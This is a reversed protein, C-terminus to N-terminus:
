KQDGSTYPVTELIDLIDQPLINDTDETPNGDDGLKTVSSTHSDLIDLLKSITSDKTLSRINQACTVLRQIQSYEGDSAYIDALVLYNGSIDTGLDIGVNLVKIATVKLDSNLYECGLDYITTCLTTYNQDYETLIPLNPAGYMLKLDTNSIGTLNVITKSSLDQLVETLERIRDNPYDAPQPIQDMPITIYELSDLSQKRVKNARIEREMYKESEKEVGKTTIKMYIWIFGFTLVITTFLPSIM